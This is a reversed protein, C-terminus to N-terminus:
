RVGINLTVGRYSFEDKVNADQILGALKTIYRQEREVNNMFEAAQAMCAVRLIHPYRTCLFNSANTASVYTAPKYYLLALTAATDYKVEFQLAEDFIAYNYAATAEALVGADYLRANELAGEDYLSLEINDTIDRLAIPDLFGDPLAESSDGVAISLESRTRMERVRLTQFILAQAEEIIQDVDLESYNMWRRISGAATKAASLTAYTMAM